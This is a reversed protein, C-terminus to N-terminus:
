PFPEVSAPVTIEDMALAYPMKWEGAFPEHVPSDNRDLRGGVIRLRDGSTGVVRYVRANPGQSEPPFFAIVDGVRPDSAAYASTQVLITDGPQITPAM